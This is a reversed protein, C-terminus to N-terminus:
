FGPSLFFEKVADVGSGGDVEVGEIRFLAASEFGLELLGKALAECSKRMPSIKDPFPSKGSGFINLESGEDDFESVVEAFAKWSNVSTDPVSADVVLL